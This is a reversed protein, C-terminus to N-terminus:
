GHQRAGKRERRLREDHRIKILWDPAWRWPRTVLPRPLEARERDTLPRLKMTM